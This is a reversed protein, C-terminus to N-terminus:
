GSRPKSEQLRVGYELHRGGVRRGVVLVLEACLRAYLIRLRGPLGDVVLLCLEGRRERYVRANAIPARGRQLHALARATVETMVSRQVFAHELDVHTDACRAHAVRFEVRNERGYSIVSTAQQQEPSLPNSPV